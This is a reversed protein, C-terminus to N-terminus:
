AAKKYRGHELRILLKDNIFDSLYKEATKLKINLKEAIRDAEKRSFEHPLGEFYKLKSESIGKFKENRKPLLNYVQSAHIMLNESIIMSTWFDDDLCFINEELKDTDMRRIISLIMALRFSILGLRKITAAGGNGWKSVFVNLWISLIHNFDEVQEETLNFIIEYDSNELKFFLNQIKRGYDSFKRTLLGKDKESFVNKWIPDEEFYYFMFRSFLGNDVDSILKNVQNPTGTLVASLKPENLEVFENNTKRAYTHQEHHYADRLFTSYNGWEKSLTDSLIEAETEFLLGREDNGAILQLFAASSANAPIYLLKRTPKEPKILNSDGNEKSANYQELVTSYNRQAEQFLQNFRYHLSVGLQKAWKAVSKNSAPPAIIFLYLNSYVKRNDYYGYVKPLCGSLVVLASYLFIDRERKTKFNSCCEKLFEPLDEELEDLLLSFKNVEPELINQISDSTQPKLDENKYTIEPISIDFESFQHEGKLVLGLEPLPLKLKVYDSIDKGGATILIEPLIIRKLDHKEALTESSKLGTEDIDYLIKFQNYAFTESSLIKEPISGTESNLCFAPFGLEYLTMVDKEGGTLYFIGGQSDQSDIDDWGFCYDNPKEGLWQFRFKTELPKYLKLCSESIEYAFVPKDDTPKFKFSEKDPKILVYKFVPKVNFLNLTEKTIGYQGWFALETESFETKYYVKYSNGENNKPTYEFSPYPHYSKDYILRLKLDTCIRQLILYFDKKLNLKYHLAAFSFVDGHFDPNGFDKYYWKEQHKYVSFSPKTDNYFPNYVNPCKKPNYRLESIAHLFFNIGGATDELINFVNLIKDDNIETIDITNM